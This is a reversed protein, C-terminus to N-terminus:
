AAVGQVCFLMGQPGHQQVRHCAHLIGCPKRGIVEYRTGNLVIGNKIAEDRDGLTNTIPKLEHPNVQRDNLLTACGNNWIGCLFM